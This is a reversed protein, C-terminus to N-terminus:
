IDIEQFILCPDEHHVAGPTKLWTSWGLRPSPHSVMGLICLPVEERKMFLRVEFEYEIGVMYRVLSFVPRLLDGDPLFRIFHDYDMPGLHIRFKTQCEWTHSGCIANVGVQSNVSGLQTQDEPDFAIAREIFQEVRARTGAFYEVASEIAVASPIPRSLLGSYYILSEEPVGIRKSLGPTGLGILSLFYHSIRDGAGPQYNVALRGKEWALYFLSILRHHFIDLFATLGFDKKRNRELALENYWHPLVGSPGILGMFTVGMNVPGDEAIQGDEVVQGDEGVRGGDGGVRGYEGTRGYEGVRGGEGVRRLHSIDSPPFAFGPKVCFRVVEEDPSLTSGLPKRDPYIRELLHVAM